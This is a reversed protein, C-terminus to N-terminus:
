RPLLSRLVAGLRVFHQHLARSVYLGMLALLTPAVLGHTQFVRESMPENTGFWM